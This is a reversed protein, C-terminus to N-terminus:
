RPRALVGGKLAIMKQNWDINDYLARKFDLNIKDALIDNFYYLSDM